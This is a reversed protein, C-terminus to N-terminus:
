GNYQGEGNVATPIFKRAPWGQAFTKDRRQDLNDNQNSVARNLDVRRNDYEIISIGTNADNVSSKIDLMFTPAGCKATIKYTCKEGKSLSFVNENKIEGISKLTIDRVGGCQSDRQACGVL